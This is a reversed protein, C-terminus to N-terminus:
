FYKEDLVVLWLYMYMIIIITTYNVHNIKQIYKSTACGPQTQVSLHWVSKLCLQVLSDPDTRNMFLTIFGAWCVWPNWPKNPLMQLNTLLIVFSCYVQCKVEEERGEEREEEEEKKEGQCSPSTWSLLGVEVAAMVEVGLLLLSDLALALLATATTFVVAPAVALVVWFGGPVVAPPPPLLVSSILFNNMSLALFISVTDLAPKGRAKRKKLM